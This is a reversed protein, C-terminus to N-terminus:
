FEWDLSFRNNEPLITEAIRKYKAKVGGKGHAFSKLWEFGRTQDAIFNEQYYHRSLIGLVYAAATNMETKLHAGFAAVFSDVQVKTLKRLPAVQVSKQLKAMLLLYNVEDLYSDHFSHHELIIIANAPNNSKLASISQKIYQSDLSKSVLGNSVDLINAAISKFDKLAVAACIDLWQIVSLHYQYANDFACDPTNDAKLRLIKCGYRQALEIEKIVERSGIINQRSDGMSNKTCLVLFLESGYLGNPIRDAYHEGGAIMVQDFWVEYGEIELSEKISLALERDQSSYSLFLKKM